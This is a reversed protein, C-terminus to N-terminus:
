MALIRRTSFEIRMFPLWIRREDSEVYQKGPIRHFRSCIWNYPFLCKCFAKRLNMTLKDVLAQQMAIFIQRSHQVAHLGDLLPAVPGTVGVGGEVGGAM